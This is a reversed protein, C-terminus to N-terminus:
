WPLPVTQKVDEADTPKAKPLTILFTTGEGIQSDVTITGKHETVIKHTVALGLGTGKSGKTSFFPQFLKEKDDPAIGSGNDAIGITFTDSAATTQVKVCGEADCADIANGVLNLLCRQLGKPDVAVEGLSKDPTWTLTVGKEKANQAMLDCVAQVIGNADAQEYEPPRDKSCSLMDLVLEQM